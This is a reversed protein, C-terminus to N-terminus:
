FYSSVHIITSDATPGTDLSEFIALHQQNDVFNLVDGSVNGSPKRLTTKEQQQTPIHIYQDHTARSMGVILHRTTFYRKHHVDPVFIHKSRIARCHFSAYTLTYTLRLFMSAENHCLEITEPSDEVEEDDGTLTIKNGSSSLHDPFLQCLMQWRQPTTSTPFLRKLKGQCRCAKKALTTATLLSTELVGMVIPTEAELQKRLANRTAENTMEILSSRFEEAPIVTVTDQTIATVHYIVGNVIKGSTGACGIM